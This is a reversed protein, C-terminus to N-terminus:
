LYVVALHVEKGQVLICGALFSFRLTTFDTGGSCPLQWRRIAGVLSTRPLFTGFSLNTALHSRGWVSKERGGLSFQGAADREPPFLPACLVLAGM